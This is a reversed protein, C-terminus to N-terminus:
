LFVALVGTYGYLRDNSIEGNAFFGVLPVEGLEDRVLTLEESNPGFLHQGRAVCSFYVAAKPGPGSRKKVDRVMRKLDRTASDHDRRCFMLRRGPEVPEGVALWGRALDLGTLNRVVYDGTDSGAVPFAVHIYGGVRRLDHALLEGIDEKFVDLAPRDDIEMIVNEEAETVTHQAGIPSCGQTLGAAVPLEPAFLVGSLGGDTIREAVQAFDARSATLGGVLFTSSEAAVEAVIRGIERNRPDGHAIGFIPRHRALWDGHAAKFADLGGDAAGATVPEFVRFADEPFATALVALAPRDHYEVGSAAVGYGVSGVWHEIRTRGRLFTLISPLDDALTDTAYLFGLNAGAPLEGLSDLCAKVTTGWDEGAAHAAKFGGATVAAPEAM